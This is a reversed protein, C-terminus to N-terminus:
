VALARLEGRLRDSEEVAARLEELREHTERKIRTLLDEATQSEVMPTETMPNETMPSGRKRNQVNSM